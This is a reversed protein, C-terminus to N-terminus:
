GLQDPWPLTSNLATNDNAERGVRYCSALPVGKSLVVSEGSSRSRVPKSPSLHSPPLCIIRGARRREDRRAKQKIALAEGCNPRLFGSWGLCNRRRELKLDWLFAAEPGVM